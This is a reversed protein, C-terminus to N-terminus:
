RRAILCDRLVDAELKMDDLRSKVVDGISLIGALTGRDVVPIHRVRWRTMLQMIDKLSEGFKCTVVKRTMLDSVPMDLVQEGKAVIGRVVDRESIIGDIARGDHSVVVAGIKRRSLQRALATVTEGPHITVVDSGKAHLLEEVNM